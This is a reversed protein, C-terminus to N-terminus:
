EDIRLVYNFYHSQYQRLWPPLATRDFRVHVRRARGEVRFAEILLEDLRALEPHSVAVGAGAAHWAGAEYTLTLEIPEARDSV